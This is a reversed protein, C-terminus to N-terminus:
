WWTRVPTLEMADAYCHYSINYKQFVSGPPLMYIIFSIPGLISGQPGGCTIPASSSFLTATSFSFSRDSLHSVSWQLASAQVGFLHIHTYLNQLTPVTYSGTFNLLNLFIEARPCHYCDYLDDCDDSSHLHPWTIADDWEWSMNGSLCVSTWINLRVPPPSKQSGSHFCCSLESTRVSRRSRSRVFM